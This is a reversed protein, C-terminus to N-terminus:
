KIEGAKRVARFQIVKVNSISLGLEQAIEATTYGKLFRLMLVQRYNEPLKQLLIAIRKEKHDQNEPNEEEEELFIEEVLPTKEIKYKEQYFDIIKYKVIGFLWNKFSSNGEFHSLSKLTAMWIESTLDEADEKRGVKNVVYGYVLRIYKKYLTAFAQEDGNQALQILKKEDDM